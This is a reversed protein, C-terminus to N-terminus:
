GKHAPPIDLTQEMVKSILIKVSERPNVESIVHALVDQYKKGVTNLKINDALERIEKKHSVLDDQDALDLNFVDKEVPIDIVEYELTEGDFIVVKPVFDMKDKSSRLIPGPNILLQNKTERIHHVHYDGSIIVRFDKNQEMFDKASIATNMYFPPEGPTIPHHICLIGDKLPKIEEGFNVGVWGYGEIKSMAKSLFLNGLSTKDLDPNHYFIDHQGYVAFVGFKVTQLLRILRNQLILPYSPKDYVDGAIVLACKRKNALDIIWEIKRFITESFDDTRIRPNKSTIHWDASVLYKM